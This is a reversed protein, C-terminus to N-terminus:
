VLASRRLVVSRLRGESEAARRASAAAQQLAATGGVTFWFLFVVEGFYTGALFCIAHVAISVLIGWGLWSEWSRSPSRSQICWALGMSRILVFVLLLLQLLGGSVAAAVYQCTVDDLGWGWHYTSRTGVMAWEPLRDIAAQILLYRHYGTSGSVFSVRTFLLGHLGSKSAFHIILFFLVFWWRGAYLAQRFPFLIWLLLGLMLGGIPTSSATLFALVICVAVGVTALLLGLSRSSAVRVMSLFIPAIAAWWIGAMISHAFAGQARIKGFRVPTIEAVGGFISFYNRGTAKEISFAMLVPVALVLNAVAFYEWCRREQMLVRGALYMALLDFGQGATNMLSDSAGRPVAMIVPVLAFCAVALDLAGWCIGAFERRVFARIILSLGLIRLFQFDISAVALRHPTPVLVLIVLVPVVALRRPLCFVAWVAAMLAALTVPHIVTVDQWEGSLFRNPDRFEYDGRQAILFSSVFVYTM